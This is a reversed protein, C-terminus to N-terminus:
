STLPWLRQVSALSADRAYAPLERYARSVNGTRDMLEVVEELDPDEKAAQVV